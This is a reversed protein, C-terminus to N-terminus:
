TVITCVQSTGQSLVYPEQLSEERGDRGTVRFFLIEQCNKSASRSSYKNTM